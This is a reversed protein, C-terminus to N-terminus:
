DRGLIRTLADQDTPVAIDTATVIADLAIPFPSDSRTDPALEFCDEFADAVRLVFRRAEDSYAPRPAVSGALRGLSRGVNVVRRLEGLLTELCDGGDGRRLHDTSELGQQLRLSTATDLNALEQVLKEATEVLAAMAAADLDPDNEQHDSTAPRQGPTTLWGCSALDYELAAVFLSRSEEDGISREQLRSLIAARQESDFRYPEIFRTGSSRGPPVPEEGGAPSARAGRIVADRSGHGSASPSLGPGAKSM